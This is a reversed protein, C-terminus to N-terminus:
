TKSRLNSTIQVAKGSADTNNEVMISTIKIGQKTANNKIPNPYLGPVINEPSSSASSPTQSSTTSAKTGNM